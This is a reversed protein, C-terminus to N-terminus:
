ELEEDKGMDGARVWSEGWSMKLRLVLRKRRPM